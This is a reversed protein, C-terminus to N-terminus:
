FPLDDTNTPAQTPTSASPAATAGNQAEIKRCSIGNYRRGNYERARPNLFAKVIAWQNYPDILAIKDNYFEIAISSKFERDTVEELVVYLKQTNNEWFTEPAGKFIIKGTFEM